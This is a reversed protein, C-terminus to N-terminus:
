SAKALGGTHPKVPIAGYEATQSILYGSLTSTEALARREAEWNQDNSQVTFFIYSANNDNAKDHDMEIRLIHYVMVSQAKELEKVEALLDEKPIVTLIEYIRNGVSIFNLKHKGYYESGLGVFRQDSMMVRKKQFNKISCKSLGLMEMRELAEERMATKTAKM